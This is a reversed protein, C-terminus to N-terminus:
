FISIITDPGCPCVASMCAASFCPRSTTLTRISFFASTCIFPSFHNQFSRHFVSKPTNSLSPVVASRPAAEWPCKSLALSKISCPASTLIFLSLCAWYLQKFVLKDYWILSAICRKLKCSVLSIQTNNFKQNLMLSINVHFTILM